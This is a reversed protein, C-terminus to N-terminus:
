LFKKYSVVDVPALKRLEQALSRDGVVVITQKDWAFVDQYASMIDKKGVKEVLMPFDFLEDYSKRQHDLNMLQMLFAKTNEFRFPFGGAYGSKQRLFESQEFEGKIQKEVVERILSLAKVVKVNETSTSIGSRGYLWQAGAYAGIGYTLGEDGRTASMLKSTFGGGLFHTALGLSAPNNLEDWNLFRGVQIQAQNAKPVTILTIKPVGKSLKRRYTVKREFTAKGTWGCDQNIFRKAKPLASEPGVFYIRKKVTDNFHALQKKLDKRTLKKIGKLGGDVPRNFPTDALSIQRMGRRAVAGHSRVMGLLGNTMRKKVNKLENGPFTADRFLHCVQGLIQSIYKTQGQVSYTSYEHSVNGGVSTGFYELNDVIEKQSYRRTGYPLMDFTLNSVGPKAGDGLAGDAFYIAMGFVPFREDKLWVVELNDWKLKKIDEKAKSSGFSSSSLVLTLFLVVISNLRNM